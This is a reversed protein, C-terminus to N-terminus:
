GFEIIASLRCANVSIKQYHDSDRRYVYGSLATNGM